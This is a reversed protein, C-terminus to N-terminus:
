FNITHEIRAKANVDLKFDFKPNDSRLFTLSGCNVGDKKLLISYDPNFPIDLSEGSFKLSKNDEFKLLRYDDKDNKKNNVLIALNAKDIITIDVDKLVIEVSEIDKLLNDEGEKRGFLDDDTGTKNITKGNLELFVYKENLNEDDVVVDPTEKGEFEFDMPILAYLRFEINNSSNKHITINKIKINFNFNADNGTFISKLELPDTFSSDKLSGDIFKTDDQKITVTFTPTAERLDRTHESGDINVTMIVPETSKLGSMYVFGKITKIKIGNSQYNETNINIPYDFNIPDTNDMDVVADAWDFLMKYKIDGSFIGTIRAYVLIEGIEGPKFDNYENVFLLKNPNSSPDPVGNIYENIGFAPIKLQLYNALQQNYTVELGFRGNISNITEAMDQLPIRLFPKDPKENDGFPLNGDEYEYIYLPYDLSPSSAGPPINIIEEVSVDDIAKSIDNEPSVSLTNLPFQLLYTLKKIDIGQEGAMAESAEYIEIEQGSDPDDMMEKIIISPNINDELKEGDKYGSFPSGLPVYLGPKGKITVSKPIGEIGCSIILFFCVLIFIPKKMKKIFM